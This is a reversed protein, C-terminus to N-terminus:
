KILEFTIRCRLYTVTAAYSTGQKESLLNTLQNYFITTQKSMGGFTLMVIPTFCGNGIECVRHGIM